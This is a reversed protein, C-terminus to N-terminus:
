KKFFKKRGYGALGILGSGLLIMTSPEPVPTLHGGGSLDYVLGGLYGNEKLNAMYYINLGEVGLINTILNGSIDLGLIERLYLAGGAIDNGDYLYLMNGTIDLTGWSFNDSYASMKTGYDMGVLYLDHLNDEGTIFGLYSQKTNWDTNMTSHNIFDGSIYFRDGHQGVLYGTNGITLNNFYQTAPDSIYAGNNTFTGTYNATTFTTKFTGYNNVHGNFTRTGSGTLNTTGKNNFGAGTGLDINGGSYNFTGDKEIGIGGYSSHVTGGSLNYTGQSIWLGRSNGGSQNFTGGNVLGSEAAFFLGNKLNYTGSIDAQDLSVRTEGEQNFIGGIFTQPVNNM